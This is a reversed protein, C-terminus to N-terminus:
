GCTSGVAARGRATEHVSQTDYGVFELKDPGLIRYYKVKTDDIISLRDGEVHVRFQAVRVEGNDAVNYLTGAEGPTRAVLGGYCSAPATWADAVDAATQAAEAPAGFIAAVTAATIWFKKM